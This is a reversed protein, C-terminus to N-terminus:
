VCPSFCSFRFDSVYVFFLIYYQVTFEVDIVFNSWSSFDRSEVEDGDYEFKLWMYLNKMKFAATMNSLFGFDQASFFLVM